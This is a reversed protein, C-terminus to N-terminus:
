AQSHGPRHFFHYYVITRESLLSPRMKNKPFSFSANIMTLFIYLKLDSYACLFPLAAYKSTKPETSLPQYGCDQPQSTCSDLSHCPPKTTDPPLVASSSSAVSYARSGTAIGTAGSTANSRNVAARNRRSSRCSAECCCPSACVLM